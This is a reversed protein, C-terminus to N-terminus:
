GFIDGHHDTIEPAPADWALRLGHRTEFAARAAALPPLVTHWTKGPAKQIRKLAADGSAPFIGRLARAFANNALEFEARPRTLRYNEFLDASPLALPEDGWDEAGVRAATLAEYIWRDAGTLTDLQQEDGARTRPYDWVKFQTIDRALLDHLMAAFGGAELQAWLQAFYAHEGQQSDAVDLVWYRRERAGARVIWDENSAILIHACNRLVIPDVGKHEIAVTPETVLAKLRPEASRDGVFVAEDAFLYCRCALLANFRGTLQAPDTLHVAHAGFLRAIARGLTSKGVGRGGRLVVAVQGAEGPRQVLRALWDLLYANCAADGACIVDRIHARLLSWDGPAPKVAFGGWLNLTGSPLAQPPPAFEVGGTYMRRRPSTLWTEAMPAGNIKRDSLLRRFASEKLLQFVPQGTAADTTQRYILADPPCLALAFERNLEDIPHLKGGKTAPEATFVAEAAASGQPNRSTTYASRITTRLEDLGLMPECVWHELLLALCDAQPVGRDKAAAAARYAADNRAGQTAPEQLQLWEIARERAHDVNVGPLVEAARTPAESAKGCREVLWPPADAIPHSDDLEYRGRETVSGPAVIYGGRSRIDVGPGLVDVGQKVSQAVRYILHAGGSPTAQELTAPLPHGAIVKAITEGGGRSMDVDVVLLGHGTAIAWNCGPWKRAWAKLQAVDFSAQNEFDRILPPSKKNASVPFLRFGFRSSLDVFHQLDAVAPTSDAVTIQEVQLAAEKGPAAMKEVATM